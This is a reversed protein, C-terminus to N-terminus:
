DRGPPWPRAADAEIWAAVWGPLPPSQAEGMARAAEPAPVIGGPGTIAVRYLAQNACDGRCWMSQEIYFFRADWGVCRSRTEVRDFVRVRRRWRVSVGAMTMGWGKDRLVAVFGLRRTLPIRGLDLLTLTRGNNLEMWIDLDWPWCMHRSVHTGTVPLPAANRHVWIEKLMRFVPYM